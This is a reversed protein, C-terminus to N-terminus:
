FHLARLDDIFEEILKANGDKWGELRASEVAASKKGTQEDAKNV